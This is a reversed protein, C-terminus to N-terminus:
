VLGIGIAVSLLLLGFAVIKQVHDLTVKKLLFHGLLAGFFAAITATSLIASNNFFERDFFTKAYISIRVLDIFCAIVVGTGIFSEKTLGSRVLFASRLAGQHGSLGGFFGSLVGGLPLFKESFSLNKFKPLIELATFGIMLTAVVLKLLTIEHDRGMLQYTFLPETKSLQMLLAAGTAAALIAPLGFKFIVRWNAARGILVLKFLNNFLHVVATLAVAVEIPFWIAFVPLLLTGLGFGSFFTLLSSAFSTAAIIIYEMM